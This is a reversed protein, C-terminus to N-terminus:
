WNFASASSYVYRKKFLLFLFLEYPVQQETVQSLFQISSFIKDQSASPGSARRAAWFQGYCILDDQIGYELNTLWDSQDVRSSM